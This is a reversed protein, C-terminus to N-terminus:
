RCRQKIGLGRGKDTRHEEEGDGLKWSGFGKEDERDRIEDERGL